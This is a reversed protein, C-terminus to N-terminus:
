ARKRRIFLGGLALLGLTTPEPILEYALGDFSTRQDYRTPPNGGPLGQVYVQIVENDTTTTVTGFGALGMYLGIHNGNIFEWDFNDRVALKAPCYVWQYGQDSCGVAYNEGGDLSVAVDWRNAAGPTGSWMEALGYIRYTGAEPLTLSVILPATDETDSGNDSDTVWGYGNSFITGTTGKPYYQWLGDSGNFVDTYNIGYEPTAGGITTNELTADVYYLTGVTEPSVVPYLTTTAPIIAAQCVSGVFLVICVCVTIKRFMEREM